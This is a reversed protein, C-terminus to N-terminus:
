LTALLRKQFSDEPQTFLVGRQQRLNFTFGLDRLIEQTQRPLIRARGPRVASNTYIEQLPPTIQLDHTEIRKWHSDIHIQVEPRFMAVDNCSPGALWSSRSIRAPLCMFDSKLGRRHQSTQPSTIFSLPASIRSTTSYLLPPCKLFHDGQNAVQMANGLKRLYKNPTIYLLPTYAHQTARIWQAYHQTQM